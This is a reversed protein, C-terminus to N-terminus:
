SPLLFSPEIAPPIVCPDTNTCTGLAKEVQKSNIIYIKCGWNVFDTFPIAYSINKHKYWAAITDTGLHRNILRSIICITCQYCFCWLEGSHVCSILQIQVMNKITQHPREVKVNITSSYGGTTEVIICYWYLTAHIRRNQFNRWRWWVMINILGMISIINTRKRVTILHYSFYDENWDPTQLTSPGNAHM